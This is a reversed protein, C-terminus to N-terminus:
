YLRITGGVSEPAGDARGIPARRIQAAPAKTPGAHRVLNFDHNRKRDEVEGDDGGAGLGGRRQAVADVQRAFGIRQTVHAIPQGFMM